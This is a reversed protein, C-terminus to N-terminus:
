KPLPPVLCLVPDSANGSADVAFVAADGNGIIHAAIADSDGSNSGGTSGIKKSEPTADPAETYKIKDGNSFPGFVTGSGTDLVWITPNPDLNDTARLEYYGDENQGGKSGPLTTSGAPPVTNGHPNVTEVCDCEPALTDPVTIRILERGIPAGEEPYHNAIFVVVATLTQGMLSADNDVSVTESFVVTTNGAVGLHVTPSLSVNLGPDISAITWWVDTTVAALGNLIAQAINAGDSSLPQVSGGTAGALADLEGGTGPAKLGIVVINQANLAAITAAQDNVHTGDPNHFTADTTVVLVRQVGPTAALDRWGCNGQEGVTPDVFAGPGAAAVIADYQAEPFDGGGGATLAAIGALWAAKTPDMSSLLRYVHDGASGYPSVPYDRFGAVAFQAGPSTGIVTDYIDSATTGGQLNGIDDGFSGTEDELLCIDVVPPIAPTTVRKTVEISGGVPITAEVLPPDVEASAPLVLSTALLGAGLVVLAGKIRNFVTSRKM